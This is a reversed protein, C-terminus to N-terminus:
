KKIKKLVVGGYPKIIKDDKDNLRYIIESNLFKEPIKLNIDNETRNVQVLYNNEDNFREFLFYEPNVEHLYTNANMLFPDNKRILGIRRFYNLIEKDINNWPFAKRNYLNGMGELGVEDGYFISLIGPLFNLAFLYAKYIAIGRKKDEPSLKYNKWKDM